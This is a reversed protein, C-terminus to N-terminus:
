GGAFGALDGAGGDVDAAAHDHISPTPRDDVCVQCSLKERGLKQYHGSAPGFVHAYTSVVWITVIILVIVAVAGFDRMSWSLLGDVRDRLFRRRWKAVTRQPVGLAAAIQEDALGEASRLIIACRTSFAPEVDDRRVQRSLYDREEASLAVVPAIIAFTKEM